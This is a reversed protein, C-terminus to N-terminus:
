IVGLNIPPTVDIPLSPFGSKPKASVRFTYRQGFAVAVTTTFTVDVEGLTPNPVALAIMGKIAASPDFVEVDYNTLDFLGGAGDVWQVTFERPVGRIAWVTAEGVQCDSM